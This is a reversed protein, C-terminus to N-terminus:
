LMSAVDFSQVLSSLACSVGARILSSSSRKTDASCHLREGGKIQVENWTTRPQVIIRVRAAVFVSHTILMRM